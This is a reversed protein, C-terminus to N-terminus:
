RPGRVVPTVSPVPRITRSTSQRISIFYRLRSSRVARSARNAIIGVRRNRGSVSQISHKAAKLLRGTCTPRLLAWVLDTEGLVKVVRVGRCILSMLGM